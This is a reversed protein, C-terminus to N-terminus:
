GSRGSLGIRASMEDTLVDTMVAKNAEHMARIGNNLDADDLDADFDVISIPTGYRIQQLHTIAIFVPRSMVDEEPGERRADFNIRQLSNTGALPQFWGVHNHWVPSVKFVVDALHKNPKFLNSLKYPEVEARFKDVVQMAILPVTRDPEASRVIDLGARLYGHAASWIREFRTYRWCEVAIEAGSFRFVWAPRGDPRLFAFVVANGAPRQIPGQPALEVEFYQSLQIAPLDERWKDHSKKVTEITKGNLPQDMSVAFTVAEIAHDENIPAFETQSM